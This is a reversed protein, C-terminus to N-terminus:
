RSAANCGTTEHVGRENLGHRVFARLVLWATGLLLLGGALLVPMSVSILLAVGYLDIHQYIWSSSLWWWQNNGTLFVACVVCSIPFAIAFYKAIRGFLTAEYTM